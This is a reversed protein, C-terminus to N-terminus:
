GNVQPLAARAEDADGREEALWALEYACGGILDAAEIAHFRQARGCVERIRAAAVGPNSAFVSSKNMAELTMIHTPGLLAQLTDREVAFLRGREAPQEAILALNGVSSVLEVDGERTRPEDVAKTFWATAGARDGASLRSVGINNYLLPREFSAAAGLRRAIREVYPIAGLVASANAPLQDKETTAIGFIERAYAEVFVVEGGGDLPTTAAQELLPLARVVDGRVVLDLGQVLYARAVLPLYGVEHSRNALAAAATAASPDAAQALVRVRAVENALADVQAALDRPPPEV